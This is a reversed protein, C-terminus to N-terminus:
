RLRVSRRWKAHLWILISIGCLELPGRTEWLADRNPLHSTAVQVSWIIGAAGGLWGIREELWAWPIGTSPAAAAKAPAYAVRRDESYGEREHGWSDRHLVTKTAMFFLTLAFLPDRVNRLPCVPRSRTM